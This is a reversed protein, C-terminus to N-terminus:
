QKPMRPFKSLPIVINKPFSVVLVLPPDEKRNHKKPKGVITKGQYIKGDKGKFFVVAREKMTGDDKIDETQMLKTLEKIKAQVTSDALVKAINDQHEINKREEASKPPTSPGASGGGDGLMFSFESEAIARTYSASGAGGMMMMSESCTRYYIPISRRTIVFDTGERHGTNWSIAGIQVDICGSMSRAESRQEGRAYVFRALLQRELNFFLVEGDFGKPIGISQAKDWDPYEALYNPNPMLHMFYDKIQLSDQERFEARLLYTLSLQHGYAEREEPTFLSSIPLSAGQARLPVQLLNITQSANTASRARQWQPELGVFSILASDMPMTAGEEAQSRAQAEHYQARFSAQLGAIRKARHVQEQKPPLVDRYLDQSCSSLGWLAIMLWLATTIKRM